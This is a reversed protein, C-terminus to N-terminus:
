DLTNCPQWARADDELNIVVPMCGWPGGVVSTEQFAAHRELMMELVDPYRGSVDNYECPDQRLNYLCWETQCSIRNPHSPPEDCHVTYLMASPDQGPPPYWGAQLNTNYSEVYRLLKWDGVILADGHYKEEANEAHAELLIWDRGGGAEDGANM